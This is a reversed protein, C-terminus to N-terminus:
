TRYLNNHSTLLCVAAASTSSAIETIVARMITEICDHIKKQEPTMSVGLKVLDIKHTDVRLSRERSETCLLSPHSPPQSEETINSSKDESLRIDGLSTRVIGRFRNIQQKIKYTV